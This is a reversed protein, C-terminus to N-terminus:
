YNGTEKGPNNMKLHFSSIRFHIVSVNKNRYMKNRYMIYM